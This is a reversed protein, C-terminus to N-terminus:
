GKFSKKPAPIPERVEKPKITTPRQIRELVVQRIWRGLLFNNEKAYARIADAQEPSATFLFKVPYPHAKRKPKQVPELSATRQPSRAQIVKRAPKEEIVTEESLISDRVRPDWSDQMDASNDIKQVEPQTRKALKTRAVIRAFDRM